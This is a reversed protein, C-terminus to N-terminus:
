RKFTKPSKKSLSWRTLSTKRHTFNLKSVAYGPIEKSQYFYISKSVSCMGFRECVNELFRSADIHFISSCKLLTRSFSKLIDTESLLNKEIEIRNECM